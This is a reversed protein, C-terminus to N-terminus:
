LADDSIQNCGLVVCLDFGDEVLEAVVEGICDMLGMCSVSAQYAQSGSGDGEARFQRPIQLDNDRGDEGAKGVLIGTNSVICALSHVVDGLHGLALDQDVEVMDKISEALYAM